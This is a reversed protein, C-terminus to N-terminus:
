APSVRYQGAEEDNMKYCHFDAEEETIFTEVSFWENVEEDYREVVFDKSTLELELLEEELDHVYSKFSTRRAREVRVDRSESFGAKHHKSTDKKTNVHDGMISEKLTM